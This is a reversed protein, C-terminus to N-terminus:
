SIRRAGVTRAGQWTMRFSGLSGRRITIPQGAKPPPNRTDPETTQWVAGDELMVTWKGYDYARASRISSKIESPADDGDGGGFFPLSPLSLGFLTRQTKKISDRDVVVVNGSATASGLTAVTADFCKLREDAAAISRCKLVGQVQPPLPPRQAKQAIAADAAVITVVGVLALVRKTM